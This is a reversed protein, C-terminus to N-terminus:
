ARGTAVRQVPAFGPRQVAQIPSRGSMRQPYLEEHMMEQRAIKGFVMILAVITYFLDFFGRNLFAAGVLFCVMSAEFMTAYSLIWSSFYRTRAMKRVRWCDWLSAFILLFYCLIAPTGLEAWIQFYSSHAVIIADGALEKVNPDLNYEMYHQRFKGFGVGFYPNDKAMRTAIGWAKLRGAASGEAAPNRLTALRETLQDPAVVVVAAALLFGIMLGLMRNRSRWILVGIAASVALVGGRSTTLGVTIVTLPMIVWFARRLEPRRETWGLTFLLPVIMGLALALDNNDALMGGPGRIIPANGLKVVGMIGSKFGYFGLSLAVVWVMVRLREKNTVMATTLLCIGVIKCFELYRTIQYVDPYASFYISTGALIMLAFMLLTRANVMIGRRERTAFFGAIMLIAVYYSWRIGKAFGWTLDQVRMFALWTFVCLGVFPRRYCAPLLGLLLLSVIIDRM